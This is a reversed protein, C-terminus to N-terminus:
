KKASGFHHCARCCPINRSGDVATDHMLSQVEGEITQGSRMTRARTEPFPVCAVMVMRCAASVLALPRDPPPLAPGGSLAVIEDFFCGLMMKMM